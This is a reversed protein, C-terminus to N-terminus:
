GRGCWTLAFDFKEERNLECDRVVWGHKAGSEMEARCDGDVQAVTSVARAVTGIRCSEGDVPARVGLWTMLFSMGFCAGWWRGSGDHAGEWRQAVGGSDLGVETNAQKAQAGAQEVVWGDAAVVVPSHGGWRDGDAV